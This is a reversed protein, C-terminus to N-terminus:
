VGVISLILGIRGHISLTNKGICLGLKRPDAKPPVNIGHVICQTVHHSIARNFSPSQVSSPIIEGERNRERTSDSFLMRNIWRSIKGETSLAVVTSEFKDQVGCPTLLINGGDIEVEWFRRALPVAAGVACVILCLLCVFSRPM